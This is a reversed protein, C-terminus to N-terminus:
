KRGAVWKLGWNYEKDMSKHGDFFRVLKEVSFNNDNVNEIMALACMIYKNNYEDMNILIEEQGPVNICVKGNAEKWSAAGKYIFTYVLIRKIDKIQNGNIFLNEGDANTGTRDDGDLFIYPARDFSGFSNGLAQVTGIKGDKLEYLCGLDLDIAKSGFLSSFIGKQTGSNWNLNINIKGLQRNEKSLNIKSGKELVISM